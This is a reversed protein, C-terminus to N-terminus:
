SKSNLIRVQSTQEINKQTYALAKALAMLAVSKKELLVCLMFTFLIKLNMVAFVKLKGQVTSLFRLSPSGM